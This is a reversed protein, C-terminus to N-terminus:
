IHSTSRTDLYSDMVMRIYSYAISLPPYEPQTITYQHRVNVGISALNSMIQNIRDALTNATTSVQEGEVFVITADLWSMEQMFAALARYRISFRSTM